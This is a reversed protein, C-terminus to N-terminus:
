GLASKPSWLGRREGDEILLTRILASMSLHRQVALIRLLKEEDEGMECIFRLTIKKRTM